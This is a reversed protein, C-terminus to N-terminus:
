ESLQKQALLEAEQERTTMGDQQNKPKRKSARQEVKRKKSKKRMEELSNQHVRQRDAEEGKKKMRELEENMQEIRNRM